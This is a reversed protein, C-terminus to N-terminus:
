HLRLAQDPFIRIRLALFGTIAPCHEPLGNRRLNEDLWRMDGHLWRTRVGTRYNEVRSVPQGSAWQWTMLPFDVGSQIANEMTGALRANIEMLLPRGDADRRFEVECPGELGITKALRM